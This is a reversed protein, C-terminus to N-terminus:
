IQPEITSSQVLSSDEGAEELVKLTERACKEWSFRKINEFGRKIMKNRLNEDKLLKYVAEAAKDADLPDVLLAANGVIEPLSSVNSCVVPTGSVMAELVPIGFGEYFSPFVFIDANKLLDTKEKELIYGKLFIDRQYSSNQIAKKIEKFGFGKKGALILKHSINYKKKLLNFIQILRVLNKRKELRGIFLICKTNQIRYKTNKFKSNQIVSKVKTASAGFSEETATCSRFVSSQRRLSKQSQVKQDYGHYVVKVKEKNAQYFKILDRKTCESPVIIKRAWKVALRTTLRLHRREFASYAEPCYEYELGHITVVTKKPHIWPITHAPIFLLDPPAKLIEASLRLQTWLYPAYLIRNIFNLGKFEDKLSRSSYLIYKNIKDIKLLHKILNYSYYETGTKNKINVRSADIGIVM